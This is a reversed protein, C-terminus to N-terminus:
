RRVEGRDLQARKQEIAMLLGRHSDVFAEVGERELRDTMEVMDLGAVALSTLHAQAQDVGMTITEAPRGHDRFADMTKLPMTNVTDPGILEQVYLVDSYAPNKTSTSAWLPRQASASGKRLAEWREGRFTECFLRYAQKANAVGAKGRLGRLRTAEAAGRSGQADAAAAKEELHEDVLGDLRSVFFSAVSHVQSVVCGTEGSHQRAHLVELGRLYAEMVARYRELSFILTVNVACGRSILDQVAAVGEATAPVKVLINPRDVLSRVRVAEAVTGQTDYALTPSVEISVWGDRGSTARHIELLEDAATRIDAVMLAEMIAEVGAGSAALAAIDGDYADSSSIAKHFISPNSTLGSVGDERILAKLRGSLLFERGIDDCWVSQGLDALRALPNREM